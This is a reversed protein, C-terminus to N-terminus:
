NFISDIWREVLTKNKQNKINFGPFPNVEIIKGGQFYPINLDPGIYDIGSFNLKLVKNIKHFLDMNIPHIDDKNIYVQKGGNSVGIVNTVIIKKNSKLVDNIKYGQNNILDVNIEKIPKVHNKKPYEAILQKITSKGDGKIIPKLNEDAYIFKDNLIMIRFKKGNVQEEIIISNKNKNKLKNIKNLLSKNDNIDTYIDEGKEGYNYKVVLPFNLKNNIHNINENDTINNNWEIFNCVPINHNQLIKSTKIKNNSINIAQANNFNNKYNVIKGNYILNNNKKDITIGYKDYVNKKINNTTFTMPEIVNNNQYYLIISIITILIISYFIFNYNM